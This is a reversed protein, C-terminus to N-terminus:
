ADDYLQCLNGAEIKTEAGKRCRRFNDVLPLRRETHVMVHPFAECTEDNM